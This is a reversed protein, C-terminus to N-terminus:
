LTLESIFYFGHGVRCSVFWLMVLIKRSSLIAERSDYESLIIIIWVKIVTVRIWKDGIYTYYM